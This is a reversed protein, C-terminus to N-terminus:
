EDHYREDNGRMEEYQSFFAITFLGVSLFVPFVLGLRWTIKQEKLLQHVEPRVDDLIEFFYLTHELLAIMDTNEPMFSPKVLESQKWIM